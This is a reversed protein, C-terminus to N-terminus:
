LGLAQLKILFSVRASINEQSNQSINLFVKKVSCLFVVAKKQGSNYTAVENSSVFFSIHFLMLFWRFLIVSFHTAEFLSKQIKTLSKKVFLPKISLVSMVKFNSLLIIVSSIFSTSLKLLWLTFITSCLGSKFGVTSPCFPSLSLATEHPKQTAHLHWIASLPAM